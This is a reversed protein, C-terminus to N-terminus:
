LGLHRDPPSEREKSASKCYCVDSSTSQRTQEAEAVEFRSKKKAGVESRPELDPQSAGLARWTSQECPNKLLNTRIESSGRGATIARPTSLM